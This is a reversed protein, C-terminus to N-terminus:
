AVEREQFDILDLSDVEHWQSPPRKSSWCLEFFECKGYKFCGTPNMPFANTPNTDFQKIENEIENGVRVAWTIFREIDYPKFVFQHRTVLNRDGRAVAQLDKLRKIHNIVGGTVLKTDGGSKSNEVGYSYGHLQLSHEYELLRYVGPASNGTKHDVIHVRGDPLLLVLDALGSYTHHSDGLSVEFETEVEIPSGEFPLATGIYTKVLNACYEAQSNEGTEKLFAERAINPPDTDGRYHGALGAHVATGIAAPMSYSLGQIGTGNFHRSWYWKRRCVDWDSASSYSLRM